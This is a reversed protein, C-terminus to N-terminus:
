KQANEIAFLSKRQNIKIPIKEHIENSASSFFSIRRNVNEKYDVKNASKFKIYNKNRKICHKSSNGSKHKKPIIKLNECLNKLFKGDTKQKPYIIMTSSIKSKKKLLYKKNNYCITPNWFRLYNLSYHKKNNKIEETQLTNNSYINSHIFSNLPASKKPYHKLEPFIPTSKENFQFYNETEEQTYIEEFNIYLQDLFKNNIQFKYIQNQIEQDIIRLLKMRIKNAILYDLDPTDVDM